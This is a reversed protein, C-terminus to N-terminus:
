KGDYLYPIAYREDDGEAELDDEEPVSLFHTSTRNYNNCMINMSKVGTYHFSVTTYDQLFLMLDYLPWCSM